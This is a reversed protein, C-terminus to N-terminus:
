LSDPFRSKTIVLNSRSWLENKYPFSNEATSRATFGIRSYCSLAAPNEAFVNLQVAQAKTIHFAYELALQLMQIGYGQGRKQSDVIIFKLFGENNVTNISYMFFGIAKGQEDTATYANDAWKAGSEELFLRLAKKTLPYPVLNACWLAHTRESDIWKELYEYDRNEIYPRIRM